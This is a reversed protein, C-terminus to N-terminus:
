LKINVMIVKDSLSKVVQKIENRIRIEFLDKCNMINEGVEIITQWYSAMKDYLNVLSAYNQEDCNISDLKNVILGRLKMIDEPFIKNKWKISKGTISNKDESFANPLLVVNETDIDLIDDLKEEMFSAEQSISNKLKLAQNLISSDSRQNQDRLVFMITPKFSSSGIRLKAYFTVSLLRELNSSIEGKHNIIVLHSSMVMM